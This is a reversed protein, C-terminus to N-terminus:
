GRGGRGGRVRSIAAITTHASGFALRVFIAIGHFRGYFTRAGGGVRAFITISHFRGSFTGAGGGLRAFITSSHFHGHFTGAGHFWGGFRRAIEDHWVGGSDADGSSLGTSVMLRSQTSPSTRRMRLRASSPSSSDTASPM